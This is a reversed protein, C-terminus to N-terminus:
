KITKRLDEFYRILKDKQERSLKADAHAWTYSKLPMENQGISKIADKIIHLKDEANYSDWISFNVHKRGGVIHNRLWWSIPAIEGYWPYTTQYSHCDYCTGVLIARTEMAIPKNALDQSMDYAPVDKSCRVFQILILFGAIGLIIKTRKTM